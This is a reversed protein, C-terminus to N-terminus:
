PQGEKNILVAAEEGAKLQLVFRHLREGDKVHVYAVCAPQDGTTIATLRLRGGKGVPVRLQQATARLTFSKLLTRDNFQLNVQEGDVTGNGDFVSVELVESRVTIDAAESGILHLGGTTDRPKPPAPPEPAAEKKEKKPFYFKRPSPKQNAPMNDIGPANDAVAPATDPAPAAEPAPPVPGPEAPGSQAMPQPLPLTAPPTPQPAPALPPTSKPPKTFFRRLADSANFSLTGSTCRNDNYENAGTVGFLGPRGASAYPHYNLKASLRCIYARSEFNRSYDISQESLTITNEERDIMGVLTARTENGPTAYLLSYGKLTGNAAETLHLEYTFSEGGAFGLTGKLVTEQAAALGGSLLLATLGFLYKM